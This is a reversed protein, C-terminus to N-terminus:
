DILMITTAVEDEVEEFHAMLIEAPFNAMTIQFETHYKYL